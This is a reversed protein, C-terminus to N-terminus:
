KNYVKGANIIDPDVEALMPHHGVGMVGNESQLHIKVDHPLVEPLCTPIGIGLNVSMGNRVEKAARTVIRLRIEEKVDEHSVQDNFKLSKVQSFRVKRKVEIHDSVTLREIM